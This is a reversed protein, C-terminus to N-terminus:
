LVSIEEPSKKQLLPHVQLSLAFALHPYALLWIASM